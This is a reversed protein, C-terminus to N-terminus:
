FGTVNGAAVLLERGATDVIDIVGNTNSALVTSTYSLAANANDIARNIDGVIDDVSLHGDNDSDTTFNINVTSGNNVTLTFAIGGNAHPALDIVNDAIAATAIASVFTKGNHRKPANTLVGSESDSDIWVDGADPTKFSAHATKSDKAIIPILM